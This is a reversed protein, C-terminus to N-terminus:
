QAQLETFTQDKAAWLNDVYTRLDERAEADASAGAAASDPLVREAIHMRVEPCRGCLFDWFSPAGAPYVITVDIIRHLRDGLAEVVTALGGVKPNLLHQYAAGQTARKEPTFRTGELFNLVSTPRHKFHDCARRTADQDHQRLEPNAALVERSYRRVYPFDLFWMAFGIGPLWLLPRKVFFSLPPIKGLFSEQLVLIDAWGQHNSLVLYWRGRDLPTDLETTTEIRTLNLSKLMLHNCGVWGDVLYSMLAGVHRRFGGHPVLLRALGGLYVPICWFVTNLVLHISALIGKTTAM